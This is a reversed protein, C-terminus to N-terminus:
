RLLSVWYLLLSLHCCCIQWRLRGLHSALRASRPLQVTEVQGRATALVSVLCVALQEVTSATIMDGARAVHMKNKELTRYAATEPQKQTCFSGNYRRAAYVKRKKEKEVHMGIPELTVSETQFLLPSNTM